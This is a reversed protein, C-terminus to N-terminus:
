GLWVTGPFLEDPPRKPGSPPHPVAPEVADAPPAAPEDEAPSTEGEDAVGARPAPEPPRPQPQEAAPAPQAPDRYVASLPQDTSEIFEYSKKWYGAPAWEIEGDANARRCLKGEAVAVDNWFAGSAEDQPSWSAVMRGESWVGNDILRRACKAVFSHPYGTRRALLEVNQGYELSALLLVAARFTDSGADIDSNYRRIRSELSQVSARTFGPGRPRDPPSGPM